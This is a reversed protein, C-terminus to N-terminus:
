VSSRVGGAAVGRGYVGGVGLPLVLLVALLATVHRPHSSHAGLWGAYGWLVVVALVIPYLYRGELVTGAILYAQPAVLTVVGAAVLV